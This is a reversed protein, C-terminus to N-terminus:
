NLLWIDPSALYKGSQSSFSRRHFSNNGNKQQELDSSTQLGVMTVPNGYHNGTKKICDFFQVHLRLNMRRCVTLEVIVWIYGRETLSISQRHILQVDLHAM